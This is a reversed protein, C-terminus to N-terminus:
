AFREFPQDPVLPFAYGSGSGSGSIRFLEELETGFGEMGSGPICYRLISTASPTRELAFFNDLM